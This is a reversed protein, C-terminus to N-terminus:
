PPPLMRSLEKVLSSWASDDIHCVVDEVSATRTAAESALTIGDVALARASRRSSWRQLDDRLYSLQRHKETLDGAAEYLQTARWRLKCLIRLTWLVEEVEAASPAGARTDLSRLCSPVPWPCHWSLLGRAIPLAKVCQEALARLAPLSFQPVRNPESLAGSDLGLKLGTLVTQSRNAVAVVLQRRATYLMWQLPTPESTQGGVADLAIREGDCQMPTRLCARWEMAVRAPAVADANALTDAWHRAHVDTVADDCSWAHCLLIHNFYAPASRVQVSTRVHDRLASSFFVGHSKEAAHARSREERASLPLLAAPGSQAAVDHMLVFLVCRQAAIASSQYSQLAEGWLLRARALVVPDGVQGSIHALERFADTGDEAHAQAPRVHRSYLVRALDVAHRVDLPHSSTVACAELQVSLVTHRLHREAASAPRTFASVNKDGSDVAVSHQLSVSLAFYLAAKIAEGCNGVCLPPCVAALTPGAAILSAAVCLVLESTWSVVWGQGRAVSGDKEAGCHAHLASPSSPSFSTSLRCHQKIVAMVDSDLVVDGGDLHQQAFFGLLYSLQSRLAAMTCGTLMSKAEVSLLGHTGVPYVQLFASGSREDAAEYARCLVDLPVPTLLPPPPMPSSAKDRHCQAETRAARLASLDSPMGSSPTGRQSIWYRTSGAVVYPAEPWGVWEEVVPPSSACLYVDGLHETPFAEPVSDSGDCCIPKLVYSTRLM